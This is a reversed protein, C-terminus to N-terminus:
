VKKILLLRVTVKLCFCLIVLPTSIEVFSNAFRIKIPACSKWKGIFYADKRIQQYHAQRLRLLVAKSTKNLIGAMRGLALICLYGQIMMMPFVAKGLGAGGHSAEDLKM